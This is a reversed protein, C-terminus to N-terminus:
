LGDGLHPLLIALDVLNHQVLSAELDWLEVLLIHFKQVLEVQQTLLDIVKKNQEREDLLISIVDDKKIINSSEIIENTIIEDEEDSSSASFSCTKKHRSLGQRHKYVKGCFCAFNNSFEASKPVKQLGKTVMERKKHKKTNIHKKWHSLHCTTYDCLICQYNQPVKRCKKDGNTVM